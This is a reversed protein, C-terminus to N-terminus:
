LGYRAENKVYVMYGTCGAEYAARDADDDTDYKTGDLEHPEMEPLGTASRGTIRRLNLTVKDDADAPRDGFLYCPVTVSKSYDELVVMAPGGDNYRPFRGHPVENVTWIRYRGDYGYGYKQGRIPPYTSVDM